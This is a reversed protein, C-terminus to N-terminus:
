LDHNIALAVQHAAQGANDCLLKKVSLLNHDNAALVDVDRSFEEACFTHLNQISYRCSFMAPLVMAPMSLLCRLQGLTDSCHVELSEHALLRTVIGSTSTFIGLKSVAMPYASVLRRPPRHVALKVPSMVSMPNLDM